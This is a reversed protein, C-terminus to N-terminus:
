GDPIRDFIGPGTDKGALAADPRYGMEVYGAERHSKATFDPVEIDGVVDAGLFRALHRLEDVVPNSGGALGKGIGTDHYGFGIGRTGAQGDTGADAAQRTDLIGVLGVQVGM